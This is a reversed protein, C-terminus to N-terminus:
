LLTQIYLRRQLTLVFGWDIDQVESYPSCTDVFKQVHVSLFFLFAPYDRLSVHM